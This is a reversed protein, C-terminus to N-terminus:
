WACGFNRVVAMVSAPLKEAHPVESLPLADRWLHKLLVDMMDSRAECVERGRGGARHQMKLRAEELKRFAKYVRVLETRSRPKAEANALSHSARSAANPPCM